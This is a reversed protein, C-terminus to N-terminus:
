SMMFPDRASIALIMLLKLVRFLCQRCHDYCSRNANCFVLFATIKVLLKFILTHVKQMALTEWNIEKFFPHSKVQVVLECFLTGSSLNNWSPDILLSM